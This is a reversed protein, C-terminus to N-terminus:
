CQGRVEKLQKLTMLKYHPVTLPEHRPAFVLDFDMGTLTTLLEQVRDDKISVNM